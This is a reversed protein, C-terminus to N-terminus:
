WGEVAADLAPKTAQWAQLLVQADDHKTQLTTYNEAIKKLLEADKKGVSETFDAKETMQIVLKNKLTILDTKARALNVVLEAVAVQASADKIAKKISAIEGEKTAIEAQRGGIESDLHLDTERSEHVFAARERELTALEDRLPQLEADKDQWAKHATDYAAQAKAVNEPVFSM